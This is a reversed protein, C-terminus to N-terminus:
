VPTLMNGMTDHTALTVKAETDRMCQLYLLSKRESDSAKQVKDM